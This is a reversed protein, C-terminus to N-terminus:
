GTRRGAATDDYGAAHRLPTSNRIWWAKIYARERVRWVKTKNTEKKRGGDRYGDYKQQQSTYIELVRENEMERYGTM